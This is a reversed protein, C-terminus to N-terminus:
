CRRAPTNVDVHESPEPIRGRARHDIIRVRCLFRSHPALDDDDALTCFPLIDLHWISSQEILKVLCALDRRPELDDAREARNLSRRFRLDSARGTSPSRTRRFSEVNLRRAYRRWRTHRVRDPLPDGLSPPRDRTPYAVLTERKRSVDLDLFAASEAVHFCDLLYVRCNPCRLSPVGVPDAAPSRLTRRSEFSRPCRPIPSRVIM